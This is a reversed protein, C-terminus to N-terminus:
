ECSNSTHGAREKNNDSTKDSSETKSPRAINEAHHVGSCREADDAKENEGAAAPSIGDGPRSVIRRGRDADRPRQHVGHGLRVRHIDPPVEGVGEARLRVLKPPVVVVVQKIRHIVGGNGRHIQPKHIGHLQERLVATSGDTPLVILRDAHEHHLRALEGERDPRPTVGAQLLADGEHNQRDALASLEFVCPYPDGFPAGGM